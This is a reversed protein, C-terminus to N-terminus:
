KGEKRKANWDAQRKTSNEVWDDKKHGNPMYMGNVTRNKYKYHPCWAM